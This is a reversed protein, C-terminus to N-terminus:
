KWKRKDTSGKERVVTVLSKFTSNIAKPELYFRIYTINKVSHVAEAMSGCFNKLRSPIDTQQDFVDLFNASCDNPKALDFDDFTVQM